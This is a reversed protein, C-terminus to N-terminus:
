ERDVGDCRALELPVRMKARLSSFSSISEGVAGANTTDDVGLGRRGEPNVDSIEGGNAVVLVGCPLGEVVRDLHQRMRRNEELSRLLGSNSEELEKSLRM